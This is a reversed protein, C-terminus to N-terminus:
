IVGIEEVYDKDVKVAIVELVFALVRGGITYLLLTSLDSFNISVYGVMEYLIYLVLSSVLLKIVAKPVGAKQKKISSRIKVYFAAFIVTSVFYFFAGGSETNIEKAFLLYGVTIPVGFTLLYIGIALLWVKLQKM